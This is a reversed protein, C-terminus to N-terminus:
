HEEKYGRVPERITNGWFLRAVYTAVPIGRNINITIKPHNTFAGYTPDPTTRYKEVEVHLFVFSLKPSITFLTM